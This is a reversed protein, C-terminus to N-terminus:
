TGRQLAAITANAQQVRGSLARVIVAHVKMATDPAHAHLHELDSRALAWLVSADEATVTASRPHGAYLAMEGAITGAMLTALRRGHGQEHLTVALRGSEVFYVTENSAEGQRVLVEGPALARRKLFPALRMWHDEGELAAPMWADLPDRANRADFGGAALVTDEAAEIAQDLTDRVEGEQALLASWPARTGCFIVRVNSAAAVRAIKGLTLAASSDVSAVPSLDLVLVMGRGNGPPSIFPRVRDLLTSATGFFVVGRLVLVRIDKARHALLERHATPRQVTSHMVSGELDHQVVGMRSQSLAFSVCSAVVGALVAVTFGIVATTALIIVVLCWDAFGMRERGDVVWEWVIAAGLSLLFAGLVPRPIAGLLATGAFAAAACVVGAALGALRSRAGSEFLVVSRGVSVISLYAGLLPAALNMWGHTRLEADLSIDGRARMELGSASLLLSILGVTAVSLLDLWQTGIWTWDAARAWTWLQWPAVWEIPKTSMAYRWASSPQGTVALAGLLLVTAAVLVLPAVVGARWRRFVFFFAAGLAVTVALRPDHLISGIPNAAFAGPLDSGVNLGGAAILWGTSALFGGVVPYPIFRVASGLRCVGLVLFVFGCFATAVAVVLALQPPSSAGAAIAALMAALISTANGDPGGIATPLQSRWALWIAGVAASLLSLGAAYPLAPKMTAPVLLAAYSLAYIVSVAGAVLGASADRWAPTARPSPGEM